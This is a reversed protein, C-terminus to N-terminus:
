LAATFFNRGCFTKYNLTRFHLLKRQTQQCSPRRRQRRCFLSMEDIVFKSVKESLVFLKGVFLYYFRNEFSKLLTLKQAGIGRIKEAMKERWKKGGNNGAMKERWKKGGNKGAIKGAM